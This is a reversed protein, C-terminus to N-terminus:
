IPDKRAFSCCRHNRLNVFSSAFLKRESVVPFFLVFLRIVAPCTIFCALLHLAWREVDSQMLRFFVLLWTGQRKAHELAGIILFSCSHRVIQRVEWGGRDQALM